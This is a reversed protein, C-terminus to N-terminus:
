GPPPRNIPAHGTTSGKSLSLFRKDLHGRASRHDLSLQAPDAHHRNPHGPANPRPTRDMPLRRLPHPPLAMTSLNEGPSAASVLLRPRRAPDPRTSRERRLPHHPGPRLVARGPQRVPLRLTKDRLTVLERMWAPPDHPDVADPRGMDLVPQITVRSRGVWDKIRAVTAPGFKEVTGFGAGEGATGDNSGLGLLDTLTLHLYLRTKAAAPVAHAPGAPSAGGVMVGLDLTAQRNAIVGIAKAKRIELPDTDGLAKLQAAQDCVLDHFVTLDLTDGTVDLHSTGAWQGDDRHYLRVGWAAKGQQERTELLQPDHSAIAQAVASEIARWGCSGVRDALQRDLYAAGPPTRVSSTGQALGRARNM